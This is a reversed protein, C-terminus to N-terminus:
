VTRTFNGAGTLLSGWIEDEENEDKINKSLHWLTQIVQKGSNEVVQGTWSTLSGYKGFNVIFAVLDGTVVGILDFEESDSPKGVATKYKGSLSGSSEMILTMESDLQNEWVGTLDVKPNSSIISKGINKEFEM